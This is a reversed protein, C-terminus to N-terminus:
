AVHSRRHPSARHGESRREAKRPERAKVEAVRQPRSKESRRLNAVLTHSKAKASRSARALRSGGVNRAEDLHKRDRRSSMAVREARAVHSRAAEADERRNTVQAVGIATRLTDIIADGVKFMEQLV